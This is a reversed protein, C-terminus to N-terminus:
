KRSRKENIQIQRVKGGGVANIRSRRGGFFGAIRRSRWFFGAIRRRRRRDNVVFL